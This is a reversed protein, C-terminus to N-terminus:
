GALGEGQSFIKLGCVQLKGHLYNNGGKFFPPLPTNTTTRLLTSLSVGGPEGEKM